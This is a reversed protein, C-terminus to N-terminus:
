HMPPTRDDRREHLKGIVDDMETIRREYAENFLRTLEIMRAEAVQVVEDLMTRVACFIEELEERTAM